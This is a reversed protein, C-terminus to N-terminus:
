RREQNESSRNLIMQRKMSAKGQWTMPKEQVELPNHKHLIEIVPDVSDYDALVTVLVDGQRVNKAYQIAEEETINLGISGGLMIGALSGAVLSAAAIVAATALGTYSGTTAALYHTLAPLQFAGAAYMFAGTIGMAGGIGAGISAGVKEESDWIESKIRERKAWAALQEEAGAGRAVAERTSSKEVPLGAPPRSFVDVLDRPFGNEGLDHIAKKASYYCDFVAVITRAM